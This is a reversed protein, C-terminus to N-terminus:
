ELVFEMLVPIHDSYKFEASTINVIKKVQVNDSVIFGDIVCTYTWDPDYAKTNNRATGTSKGDDGEKTAIISYGKFDSEWTAVWDPTTEGGNPKIFYEAGEPTLVQNFDGGIIVYNGSDRELELISELFNVQKKRILGGKDYASMHVNIIVLEKSSNEINYRNVLICRDLDILNDVKSDSLPLSRRVSSIPQAKSLTLIESLSKGIPRTVPYFLYASHYNIAKTFSFDAFATTIMNEQNIHYSRDSNLDVEQFLAFDPYIHKITSIAMNTNNLVHKKDVARSQTGKIKIKGEPDAYGSDMFFDFQDDYAGFGINNTTISYVQGTYISSSGTKSIEELQNDKIRYFNAFVVAFYIGAIAVLLFLFAAIGILIKILLSERIKKM